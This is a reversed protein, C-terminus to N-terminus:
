HGKTFTSSEKKEGRRVKKWGNIYVILAQYRTVLQRLEVDVRSIKEWLMQYRIYCLM